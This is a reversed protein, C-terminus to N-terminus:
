ASSPRSMRQSSRGLAAERSAVIRIREKLTGVPLRHVRELFRATIEFGRAVLLVGNATRVDEALVMGAVLEAAAVEQVEGEVRAVDLSAALAELVDQEYTGERQRLVELAEASSDGQSELVDFDTAVRLVQAGRRVVEADPGSPLRCLPKQYSALIERVTEMRPINAIVQETISPLKAVLQQEDLTLARAFYVKEAIEDPLMIHGLQSLMAAVEVQWRPKLGLGAALASVTRKVRTSRGFAVPNTLSLADTLAKICGHVTQELLVKEATILRHQEAASDVAAVLAQPSCPKTLFRFIQGDNVAAIASTVDAQGTLLLRVADPVLARARALFAAGDLGPMQMDSVIVAIQLERQLVELGDTGSAAKEVRYRRQLHLSLADLVNADDDVCLVLPKLNADMPEADGPHVANM